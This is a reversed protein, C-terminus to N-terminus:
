AGAKIMDAAKEAIMVTPANTNGTPVTPMISADVVRLGQVGRVKLEHDVVAMDDNGMKCTGVQHHYTYVAARAYDALEEDSQKDAGPYIERATVDALSKQKAVDRLIRLNAVLTQVDREDALINPDLHLPADVDAGTLRLEGRSKPVIGGACLTYGNATVPEWGPLYLPVHFFLPQMDPAPLDKASRIFAQGHPPPLGPDNPPPLPESGEFIVPLLTHDHLNKGVGPLDIKVEIGVSELQAREGIGSLMLLRPSKMTGGSLIVERTATVSHDQGDQIYTVGTARNGDLTVNKVRANTILHLNQRELAPRLFAVSTSQRLGDRVNLHCIGAGESDKGNPDDNPVIGYEIAADVCRKIVPHPTYTSNVYLMGGQGHFENAGRDYNESKKFYPLVSDYDWGPNGAAAWADYDSRHGRVYILSNLSGSGGLTKGRPWHIQRDKCHKQPATSYDWDFQTHWLEILRLPTSIAESDDPGGAELLLVKAGNETLRNALVCGASGAGCIIYDFTGEMADAANVSAGFLGEGLTLVGSAITTKRLFDRRNMNSASDDNGM